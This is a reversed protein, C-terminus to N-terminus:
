FKKSVGFTIASGSDKGKIGNEIIDKNGYEGTIIIRSDDVFPCSLEAGTYFGKSKFSCNIDIYAFPNLEVVNGFKKDNLLQIGYYKGGIRFIDTDPNGTYDAYTGFDLELAHEGSPNIWSSANYFVGKPVLYCSILPPTIEADGIKVTTLETERKGNIAYNAIAWISDYTNFSLADAALVLKKYENQNLNIGLNKYLKMSQTADGNHVNSDRHATISDTLKCTLFSLANDYTLNNKCHGILFRANNEEQNIGAVCISLDQEDTVSYNDGRETQMRPFFFEIDADGYKRAERLHGYEHSIGSIEWNVMFQTGSLLLRGALSESIGLKMGALDDARGATQALSYWLKTNSDADSIPNKCNLEIEREPIDYSEEAKASSGLIFMGLMLGTALLEKAYRKVSNYVNM